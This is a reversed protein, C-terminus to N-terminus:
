FYVGKPRLVGINFVAKIIPLLYGTKINTRRVIWGAQPRCMALV